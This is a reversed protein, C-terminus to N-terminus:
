PIDWDAAGETTEKVLSAPITGVRTVGHRWDHAFIRDNPISGFVWTNDAETHSVHPGLTPIVEVHAGPLAQYLLETIRGAGSHARTLDPPLLLVRKLDKKIRKRAEELTREVAERIQSESLSPGTVSFWPM